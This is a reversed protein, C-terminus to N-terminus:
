IVVKGQFGKHCEHEMLLPVEPGQWLAHPPQIAPLSRQSADAQGVLMDMSRSCLWVHLENIFGGLAM